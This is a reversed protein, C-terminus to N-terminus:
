PILRRAWSQIEDKGEIQVRKKFDGVTIAMAGERLQELPRYLHNTLFYSIIAVALVAVWYIITYNQKISNINSVVDQISQSFLAVGIIESNEIIASAYYGAWLKTGETGIKHFGYSTDRQGSLIEIIEPLEIRAGNLRSYSDVQVVGYSDLLLVRGSIDQGKQLAKEYLAQADLAAFEGAVQVSFDSVDQLNASARSKLLNNEIINSTVVTVLSFAM